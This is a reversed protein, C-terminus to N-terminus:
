KSGVYVLLSRAKEIDRRARSHGPDLRLTEEWERIAGQLDEALFYNVGKRYHEDARAKDRATPSSVSKPKAQKAMQKHERKPEPELNPLKVLIGPKLQDNAAANSFYAVLFEKASDGYVKKAIGSPTDGQRTEYLLYDAEATKTKLYDLAAKHQPDYALVLLFERRASPLSGEGLYSLGKQFHRDAETRILKQIHEIKHLAEPDDPLFSQVIKWSFLAQQVEGQKEQALARSRYTDPFIRFPDKEVDREAPKEVLIVPAPPTACGVLAYLALIAIANKGKM